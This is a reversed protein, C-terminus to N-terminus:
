HKCIQGKQPIRNTIKHANESRCIEIYPRRIILTHRQLNDKFLIPPINLLAWLAQNKTPLAPIIQHIIKYLLIIHKINETKTKDFHLKLSRKFTGNAVVEYQDDQIFVFTILGNGIQNWQYVVVIFLFIWMRAEVGITTGIRQHWIVNYIRAYSNSLPFVYSPNTWWQERSTKM